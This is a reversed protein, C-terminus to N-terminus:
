HDLQPPLPQRADEAALRLTEAPVRLTVLGDQESGILYKEQTLERMLTNSWTARSVWTAYRQAFELIDHM